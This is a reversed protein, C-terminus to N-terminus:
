KQKIIKYIDGNVEFDWSNGQPIYKTLGPRQQQAHNLKIFDLLLKKNDEDTTNYNKKYFSVPIYITNTYRSKTGIKPDIQIYKITEPPTNLLLSATGNNQIVVTDVFLINFDKNILKSHYKEIFSKLTGVYKKPIIIMNDIPVEKVLPWEGFFTLSRFIITEISQSLRIGNKKKYYKEGLTEIKLEYTPYQKNTKIKIKSGINNPNFKKSLTFHNGQTYEKQENGINTKITTHNLTSINKLNIETTHNPQNEKDTILLFQQPNNPNTIYYKINNHKELINSIIDGAGPLNEPVSLAPRKQKKNTSLHHTKTSTLRNLESSDNTYNEVTM